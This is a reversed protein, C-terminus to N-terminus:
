RRRNARALVAVPFGDELGLDLGDSPRLGHFLDAEFAFVGKVSFEIALVGAFLFLVGRARDARPALSLPSAEEAGSCAM